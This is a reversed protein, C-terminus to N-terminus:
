RKRIAALMRGARKGERRYSFFHEAHCATCLGAVHISSDPVGAAILQDRNARWLDLQLRDDGPSFWRAAADADFRQGLSAVGERVDPGV